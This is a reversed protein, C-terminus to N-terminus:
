LRRGLLIGVVLAAIGVGGVMIVTTTLSQDPVIPAGPGRAFSQSITQMVSHEDNTISTVQQLSWSSLVGDTDFSSVFSITLTGNMDGYDPHETEVGMVARFSFSGDGISNTFEIIVDQAEADAVAENWGTTHTSWVPNVFFMNGPHHESFYPYMDLDFGDALGNDNADTTDINFYVRNGQFAVSGNYEDYYPASGYPHYNFGTYTYEYYDAATINSVYISFSGSQTEDVVIQNDVQYKQDFWIGTFDYTNGTIDASASRPTAALLLLGIAAILILTRRPTM